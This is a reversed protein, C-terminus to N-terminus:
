TYNSIWPYAVVSSGVELGNVDPGFSVIEGEIEHGLVHPLNLAAGVPLQNGGGLDFFGDHLHVDSHCVGSHTIKLLVEKGKPTPTDMEITQLPKGFEVIAESKM